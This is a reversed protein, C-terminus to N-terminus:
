WCSKSKTKNKEEDEAVNYVEVLQESVQKRPRVWFDMHDGIM